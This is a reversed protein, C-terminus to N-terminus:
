KEEADYHQDADPFHQTAQSTLKVLLLAKLPHHIFGSVSTDPGRRWLFSGLSYKKGEPIRSSLVINWIFISKRENSIQNLWDLTIDTRESIEIGFYYLFSQCQDDLMFILLTSIAMSWKLVCIVKNNFM